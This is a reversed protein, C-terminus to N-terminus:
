PGVIEVNLAFADTNPTMDNFSDVVLFYTGDATATYAISEPASNAGVDSGAVCANVPDACDSLLYLAVDNTAQYATAVLTQGMTLAVSYVVDNGPEAYGTCGADTPDLDGAAGELTGYLVGSATIPAAAACTDGGNQPGVCAGAADCFLGTDCATGESAGAPLFLECDPDEAGCGCECTMGDDYVDTSCTWSAPPVCAGDAGCSAVSADPLHAFGCNFVYEAADDCDPDRVGCNCDCGDSAGYFSPDCTWGQPAGKIDFSASKVHLCAGGPVPKSQFTKQDITVEVLTVDDISGKTGGLSPISSADLHLTGSKQFFVPGPTKAAPDQYVLVCQNCSKYNDDPAASLDFDGTDDAYFEINGYDTQKGGLKPSKVEAQILGTLPRTFDGLTVETCAAGSGGGGQSTGTTTTMHPGTTAGGGGTPTGGGASTDNSGCGAAAALAAMLSIAAAAAMNKLRM